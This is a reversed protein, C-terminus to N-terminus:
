RASDAGDGSGQVTTYITKAGTFTPQVDEKQGQLGHDNDLRWSFM